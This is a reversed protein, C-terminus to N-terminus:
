RILIWRLRQQISMGELRAADDLDKPLGEFAATLLLLALPM